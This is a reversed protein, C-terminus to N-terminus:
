WAFSAQPRGELLEAASLLSFEVELRVNIQKMLILLGARGAKERGPTPRPPGPRCQSPWDGGQGQPPARLGLCSSLPPVGLGGGGGAVGSPESGCSGRDWWWCLMAGALTAERPPLPPSHCLPGM